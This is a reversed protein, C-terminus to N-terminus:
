FIELETKKFGGAHRSPVCFPDTMRLTEIAQFAQSRSAQLDEAPVPAMAPHM